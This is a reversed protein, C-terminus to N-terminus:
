LQLKLNETINKEDTERYQQHRRKEPRRTHFLSYVVGRSWTVDAVDETRTKKIPAADTSEDQLGSMECSETAGALKSNDNDSVTIARPACM